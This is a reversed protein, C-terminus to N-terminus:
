FNFSSLLMLGWSGAEITRLSDGAPLPRDAVLGNGLVRISPDYIAGIGFNWSLNSTPVLASGLQRFGIMLGFGLGSLAKENGGQIAVFPGIGWNGSALNLFPRDPAFFYHAELVYGVSTDDERTVRVIGRADVVADKIANSRRNTTIAAGIGFKFGFLKELADQRVFEDGIRAILEPDGSGARGLLKLAYEIRGRLDDAITAAAAINPRLLSLGETNRVTRVARAIDENTQAGANQPLACAALLIAMGQALRLVGQRGICALTRLCKLTTELRACDIFVCM